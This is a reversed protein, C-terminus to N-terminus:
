VVYCGPGTAEADFSFEVIAKEGTSRQTVHVDVGGREWDSPPSMTLVMMRTANTEIWESEHLRGATNRDILSACDTMDFLMTWDAGDGDTRLSYADQGSGLIFFAFNTRGPYIRLAQALHREVPKGGIFVNLNGAFHPNGRGLLDFLDAPLGGVRSSMWQTLFSGRSPRNSSGQEDPNLLATFLRRPPVSDFSGLPKVRRRRVETTVDASSGPAIAPVVVEALPQWPVFAGLPAAEISLREPKSAQKGRNHVTVRVRVIGRGVDSFSIDSREVYLEAGGASRDRNALDARRAELSRHLDRVGGDLLETTAPTLMQTAM